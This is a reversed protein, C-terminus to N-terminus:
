CKVAQMSALLTYERGGCLSKGVTEYSQGAGEQVSVSFARSSDLCM